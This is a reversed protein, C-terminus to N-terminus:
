KKIHLYVIKRPKSIHSDKSLKTISILKPKQALVDGNLYKKFLHDKALSESNAYTYKYLTKKEFFDFYCLEFLHEPDVFNRDYPIYSTKDAIRKSLVKSNDIFRFDFGKLKSKSLLPSVLRPNSFLLYQCWRENIIIGMTNPRPIGNLFYELEKKNRIKFGSPFTAMITECRNCKKAQLGGSTAYFCNLCIHNITKNSNKLKLM